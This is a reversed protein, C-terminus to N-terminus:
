RTVGHSRLQRVFDTARDLNSITATETIEFCLKHAPVRSGSVLSLVESAFGGHGLSQGSVNISVFELAAIRSLNAELDRLALRLVHLDVDPALGYREAAAILDGTDM